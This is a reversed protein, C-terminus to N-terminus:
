VQRFYTPYDIYGKDGGHYFTDEEWAALPAGHKIREVLDPNSIYTKGFAVLDVLGSQLINEASELTYGGAIMILNKFRERADALYATHIIPQDNVIANSFHVYLIGLKQLEDMIYQHTAMEEPYPKLGYIERFPSLRIGIRNAGIETVVSQMVELLFRNRNAISGGYADTRINSHPNIFQDILFGHAAHIEVGDFGIEIANSAAKRFINVWHPIQETAIAIPATMPEYSNNPLRISENVKIASPAVLPEGNQIASHGVRGSHVLQMFIKGEAAHVEDVIKKWAQKQADNYIAPTHLYAGSNSSIATNDTIILGASARQRYYTIMAPQPIGNNARRRNMPAMVVRNHLSINRTVLPDLLKKQTM